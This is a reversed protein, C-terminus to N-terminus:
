QLLTVTTTTTTTYSVETVTFGSTTTTTSYYGSYPGLSTKAADCKQCLVYMDGLEGCIDATFAYAAVAPLHKTKDAAIIAKDTNNSPRLPSAFICAAGDVNDFSRIWMNFNDEYRGCKYLLAAVKYQNHQNMDLLSWGLKRCVQEAEYAGSPKKVVRINGIRHKCIHQNKGMLDKEEGAVVQEIEFNQPDEDEAELMVQPNNQHHHHHQHHSQHHCHCGPSQPKCHCKHRKQCLVPKRQKCYQPVAIAGNPGTSGTWLALCDRKRYDDGNWSNIWAHKLPGLHEWLESSADLFNYITLDALHLGLQKCACEAQCHPLHDEILVFESKHNKSPCTHLKQAPCSPEVYKTKTKEEYLTETYVPFDETVTTVPIDECIVPIESWCVQRPFGNLAFGYVTAVACEEGRLGNFSAIWAPAQPNIICNSLLSQVDGKNQDNVVALRWGNNRCAEAAERYSYSGCLYHMQGYSYSCVIDQQLTKKLPCGPQKALEMSKPQGGPISITFNGFTISLGLPVVIQAMALGCLSAGALLIKM